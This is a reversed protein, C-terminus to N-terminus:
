KAGGPAVSYLWGDNSGFYITGDPAIEPESWVEGGTPLSWLISGGQVAYLSSDQCGVYVIGDPSVAPSASSYEPLNVQWATSGNSPNLAYVTGSFAVVFVLDPIFRLSGGPPSGINVSWEISGSPGISYITGNLTGVFSNGTSQSVASQVSVGSDLSTEWAPVGDPTLSYYKGIKNGFLLNGSPSVTATAWIEGQTEFKWAYRRAVTVNISRVDKMGLADEAEVQIYLNKPLASETVFISPWEVDVEFPVAELEAVTLGNVKISVAVVAAGESLWQAAVHLPGDEFFVTSGDGPWTQLLQPPTNDFVVNVIDTASDGAEDATACSVSHPGDAYKKTDFTSSYPPLLDTDVRVGDVHFEVGLPNAGGSVAADVTVVGTLVEGPLSIAVKLADPDSVSGDGRGQVDFGGGGWDNSNDVEM